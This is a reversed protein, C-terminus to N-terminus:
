KVEQTVGISGNTCTKHGNWSNEHAELENIIDEM